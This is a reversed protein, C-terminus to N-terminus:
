KPCNFYNDIMASNFLNLYNGIPFTEYIKTNDISGGPLIPMLMVVNHDYVGPQKYLGFMIVFDSVNNLWPISEKHITFYAPELSEKVGIRTIMWNRYAKANASAELCTINKHYISFANYDLKIINKTENSPNFATGNKKDFAMNEKIEKDLIRYKGDIEKFKEDTDFYLYAFVISTIAFLFLLINKKMNNKKVFM